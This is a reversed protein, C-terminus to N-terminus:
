VPTHTHTHTHTSMEWWVFPLLSLQGAHSTVYRLLKGTRLYDGMKISVLGSTSYSKNICTAVNSSLWAAARLSGCQSIIHNSTIITHRRRIAYYVIVIAYPTRQDHAVQYSCSSSSSSHSSASSLSPSSSSIFLPSESGLRRDCSAPSPWHSFTLKLSSQM